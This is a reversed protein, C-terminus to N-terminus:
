YGWLWRPDDGFAKSLAQNYPRYTPPPPTGPSSFCHPVCTQPPSRKRITYNARSCLVASLLLPQSLRQDPITHPAPPRM